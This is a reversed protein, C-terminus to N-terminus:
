TATRQRRTRVRVWSRSSFVESKSLSLHKVRARWPGPLCKPLQLRFGFLAILPLCMYGGGYMQLRGLIKMGTSGIYQAVQVCRGSSGCNATMRKQGICPDSGSKPLNGVSSLCV